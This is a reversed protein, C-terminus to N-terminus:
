ELRLFPVSVGLSRALEYITCGLKPQFIEGNETGDSRGVDACGDDRIAKM